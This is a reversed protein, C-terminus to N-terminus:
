FIIIIFVLRTIVIDLPFGFSSGRKSFPIEEAVRGEPFTSKLFYCVVDSYHDTSVQSPFPSLQFHFTAARPIMIGFPTFIKLLYDLERLDPM